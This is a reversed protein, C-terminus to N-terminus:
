AYEEDRFKAPRGRRRRGGGISSGMLASFSPPAAAAASTPSASIPMQVDTALGQPGTLITSARGRLSRKREEEQAALVAPDNGTPTAPAKEMGPMKPGKLLSGLGLALFPGGLLAGLPGGLAKRGAKKLSRGIGFPM